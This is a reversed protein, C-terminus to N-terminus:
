GLSKEVDTIQPKVITLKKSGTFSTKYAFFHYKDM